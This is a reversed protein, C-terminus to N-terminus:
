RTQMKGMKKNSIMAVQLQLVMHNYNWYGDSNAGYELQRMFPSETLPKKFGDICGGAENAAQIDKYKTNSRKANIENLQAPTVALGFGFERNVFASIVRGLGEDKPVLNLGDHKKDFSITKFHM